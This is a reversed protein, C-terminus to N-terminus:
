GFSIWTRNMSLLNYDLIFKGPVCLSLPKNYVIRERVCTPISNHFAYGNNCGVNCILDKYEIMDVITEKDFLVKLGKKRDEM